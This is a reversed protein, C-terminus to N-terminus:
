LDKITLPPWLRAIKSAVGGGVVTEIAPTVDKPCSPAKEILAREV